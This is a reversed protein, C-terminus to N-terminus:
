AWGPNGLPLLFDQYGGLPPLTIYSRLSIDYDPSYAITYSVDIGSSLVAVRNSHESADRSGAPLTFYNARGYPSTKAM